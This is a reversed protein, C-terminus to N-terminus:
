SLELGVEGLDGPRGRLRDGAHALFLGSCSGTTVIDGARLPMGRQAAHVALWPLMRRVDGATNGGRSRVVESGNCLLIAVLETADILRLDRVTSAPGVILAGHSGLDACQEAASRSRWDSYRSGLIEIAPRVAGVAAFVLDPAYALPDAPLDRAFEVAVEVEIGCFGFRTAALVSGDAYICCAPLASCGPEAGADAAGVKWGRHGGLRAVLASQIAYAAAMSEPRLSADLGPLLTGAHWAQALVEAAQDIRRADM